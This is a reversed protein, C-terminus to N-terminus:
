AKEEQWILIWCQEMTSSRTTLYWRSVEENKQDNGIESASAAARLVLGTPVKIKSM